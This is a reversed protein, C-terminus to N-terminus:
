SSSPRPHADLWQRYRAGPLDENVASQLARLQTMTTSDAPAGRLEAEVFVELARIQQSESHKQNGALRLINAEHAMLKAYERVARADRLVDAASEPSLADLLDYSTGFASQCAERIQELAGEYDGKGVLGLMKAVFRAIDRIMREIYDKEVLGM